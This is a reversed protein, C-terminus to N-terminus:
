PKLEPLGRLSTRVQYRLALAARKPVRLEFAPKRPPEFREAWIYLAAFLMWLANNNPALLATVMIPGCSAICYLAHTFAFRLGAMPGHGFYTLPPHRHGRNLVTQKAPSAQWLMTITLAIFMLGWGSPLAVRLVITLSVFVLGAAFWISLYGFLFLAVTQGTERALSRKRVHSLPGLTLPLMMAIVMVGWSLVLHTPSLWMLVYGLEAGSPLTGILHGTCLIPLVAIASQSLLLGFWALASLWLFLASMNHLPWTKFRPM